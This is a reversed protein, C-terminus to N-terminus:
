FNANGELYRFLNDTLLYRLDKSDIRNSFKYQAHLITSRGMPSNINIGNESSRDMLEGPTLGHNMKVNNTLLNEILSFIETELKAPFLQDLEDQYKEFLSRQLVHNDDEFNCYGVFIYQMWPFM